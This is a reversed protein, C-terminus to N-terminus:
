DIYGLARLREKVKEEDEKSMTEGEVSSTEVLQELVYIIFEEINNFGADEAERTIKEYLTKPISIKVTVEEEALVRVGDM